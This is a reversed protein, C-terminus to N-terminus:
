SCVHYSDATSAFPYNSKQLINDIRDNYNTCALAVTYVDSSRQRQLHTVMVELCSFAQPSLLNFFLNQQYNLHSLLILEQSAM